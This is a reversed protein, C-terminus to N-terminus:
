VFFPLRFRQGEKGNNRRRFFKFTIGRLLSHPILFDNM